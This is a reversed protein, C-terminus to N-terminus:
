SPGGQGPRNLARSITRDLAQRLVRNRFDSSVSTYLATTSAHSHGVQFQVFLPDYGGELLHTVYSHRLCHLGIEPPLGVAERYEAFRAGLPDLQLRASRESPWLASSARATEFLDRFEDVWQDIVRTSWPFVTLVSRRKPPSGRSAKGWRVYVVGREGFESAQPNPGFDELDLMIVERRRLGWAYATKFAASDRLASLWGKRGLKRAEAVREDAYDFFRQLERKTLARRGPRGEYEVVHATTNWEFCIQSPHSGFLRECVGTWQYRPDAVYDLFLRLHCQYGRVTSWALHRGDRTRLEATFDELDHPQWAWPWEGTFRQFRRVLGVRDRITAMNLNRSLQQTEWGSLM